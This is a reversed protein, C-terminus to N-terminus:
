SSSMGNKNRHVEKVPLLSLISLPKGRRDNNKGLILLYIYPLIVIIIIIIILIIFYCLWECGDSIRALM